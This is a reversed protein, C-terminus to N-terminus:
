QHLVFLFLCVQLLLVCFYHKRSNKEELNTVSKKHLDDQSSM